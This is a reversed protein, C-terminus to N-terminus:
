VKVTYGVDDQGFWIRAIRALVVSTVMVATYYGWQAPINPWNVITAALVIYGLVGVCACIYQGYPFDDLKFREVLYLELLIVSAAILYLGLNLGLLFAQGVTILVILVYMSNRWQRGLYVLGILIAPINIVQLLLTENAVVQLITFVLALAIVWPLKKTM